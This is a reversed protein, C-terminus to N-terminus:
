IFLYKFIFYMIILKKIISFIWNIFNYIGMFFEYEQLANVLIIKNITNVTLIDFKENIVNLHFNFLVASDNPSFYIECLDDYLKINNKNNNNKHLIEINHQFFNDYENYRLYYYESYIYIITKINFHKINTNNPIIVKVYDIMINWITYKFTLSDIYNDVLETKINIINIAHCKYNFKHSTYNVTNKYNNINKEYLDYLNQLDYSKTYYKITIFNFLDNTIASIILYIIIIVITHM